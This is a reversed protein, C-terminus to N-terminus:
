AQESGLRHGSKGTYAPYSRSTSNTDMGRELQAPAHRHLFPLLSRRHAPRAIHVLDKRLTELIKWDFFEVDGDEIRLVPELAVDGDSTAEEIGRENVWPFHKPFRDRLPRRSDNQHVVM